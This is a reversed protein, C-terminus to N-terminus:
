EREKKGDFPTFREEYGGEPYRKKVEDEDFSYRFGDIYSNLLEYASNIREMKERDGGVDPHYRKALQIYRRKIDQKTVLIPLGLIELATDIEEKM